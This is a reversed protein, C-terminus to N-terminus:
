AKYNSILFKIGQQFLVELRDNQNTIIFGWGLVKHLIPTRAEYNESMKYAVPKLSKHKEKIQAWQAELDGSRDLKLDDKKKKKEGAKEADPSSPKMARLLAASPSLEEAEVAVESPVDVDSENASEDHSEHAVLDGDTDQDSAILSLDESEDVDAKVSSAKSNSVKSSVSKSSKSPKEKRRDVEHDKSSKVKGLDKTASKLGTSKDDSPKAVKAKHAASNIIAAKTALKGAPPKTVKKEVPHKPAKVTAKASTKAEGKPPKASAKLAVKASHKAASKVASKAAAKSSAGPKAASKAASKAHSKTNKKASSVWGGIRRSIRRLRNLM